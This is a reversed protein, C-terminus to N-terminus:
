KDKEKNEQPRRLSEGNIEITICYHRLRDLLAKVLQERKFLKYWEEYALNSTIITSKTAYRMEMLKFFANVQEPKLSLYGLEDILLLDYKVLRNLLKSTSRDALSAYLDDLLDQANYFRCRYGNLLAKRMIGIALGSKGTGPPGIFVLNTARKIFDLGALTNIMRRNLTPQLDFPFTELSWNYPLKARKLRYALAKEQRYITEENLLHHLFKDCPWHDKSSQDLVQDLVESIGGFRLDKLLQHISERM